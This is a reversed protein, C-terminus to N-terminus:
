IISEQSVNTPTTELTIEINKSFIYKKKLADFIQKL